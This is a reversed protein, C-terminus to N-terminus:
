YVDRLYRKSRRLEKLYEMAGKEDFGGYERFIRLLMVEVDKAMAKADGCVFIYAGKQIWRYLERGEEWMRHQVYMKEAQERSFATTLLLRGSAALEEWLEKYFFDSEKYRGGFFLWSRGVDGRYVRKQMFGRYPAVGTGPGIMIIDASPEEPLTFGKHPHIYIPLAAEGERALVCLYHTCVGYREHGGSAYVLHAVTLHVEEGVSPGHSAISYFRPLLPMLTDIFAGLDGVGVKPKFEELFDWVEREEVFSKFLERNEAELLSSLPEGAMSVLGRTVDTLSCHHRLLAKLPKAEESHRSSILEMGSAGLARLVKEVVVEDNYALIAICDGVEYTIGSNTLDIAIHYTAKESTPSCLLRREKIAAYYPHYRSYKSM